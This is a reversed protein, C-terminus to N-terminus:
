HPRRCGPACVLRASISQEGRLGPGTKTAGEWKTWSGDANKAHMNGVSRDYINRYNLSRQLLRRADNTKGVAEALRGACYDFYANELTMRSVGPVFGLERYQRRHNGNEKNLDVTQRCLDYAKAVDYGRIGKLYAEAFVSVAPDGIMCGSEATMIEWRALYGNGSLEAQQMLSNVTDNVVDPRIISLLPYQSRFVDWGSFITRYTFGKAQHLKGDAGTYNGDVDSYARPDLMAHYLATAFAERQTESGGRIAVGALAKEWLRRAEARVQTM